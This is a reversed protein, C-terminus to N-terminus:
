TSAHRMVDGAGALSPARTMRWLGSRRRARIMAPHTTTSTARYGLAPWMAAPTASLATGIGAGRYDPLTVPRHQPRRPPGRGVFPVWASFAVPADDWTALFCTAGPSLAGTLYHHPAFLPWASAQARVVALDIRPRRQLSRWQWAKQAPRYVWDPN